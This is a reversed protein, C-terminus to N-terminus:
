RQWGKTGDFVMNPVKIPWNQKLNIASVNLSVGAQHELALMELTMANEESTDPKTDEQKNNRNNDRKSQQSKKYRDRCEKVEIIEHARILIFQKITKSFKDCKGERKVRPDNKMGTKPTEAGASKAPTCANTLM